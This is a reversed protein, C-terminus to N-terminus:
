TKNGAVELTSWTIDFEVTRSPTPQVADSDVVAFDRPSPWASAIPKNQSDVAFQEIKVGTFTLLVAEWVYGILGVHDPDFHPGPDPGAGSVFQIILADGRANGLKLIRAAIAGLDFFLVVNDKEYTSTYGPDDTTFTGLLNWVTSVPLTSGWNTGKTYGEWPQTVNAVHSLLWYTTEGNISEELVNGSVFATESDYEYWYFKQVLSTPPQVFDSDWHYPSTSSVLVPAEPDPQYNVKNGYMPISASLQPLLISINKPNVSGDQWTSQFTLVAIRSAGWNVGVITERSDLRWPPDIAM